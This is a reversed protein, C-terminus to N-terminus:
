ANLLLVGGLAAAVGINQVARLREGHIFRALLTTAVPYLSALVTVVALDSGARHAALGYLGNASMDGLGVLLLTVLIAPRFRAARVSRGAPAPPAASAADEVDVATSMEGSTENEPRTRATTQARIDAADAAAAGTRLVDADADITDATDTDTRANDTHAYADSEPKADARRRAARLGALALPGLVLLGTARQAVLTGYVSHASGLAFLVFYWGFGAASVLTYLLTSRGPRPAGHLRPGCALLVGAFALAMGAGQLPGVAEGHALAWLVPIVTGTASMPAVLSMPGAAMARYFAVLAIAGCAGAGAGYGQYAGWPPRALPAGILLAACAIAVGFFVVNVSPMRRSLTGGAFDSTGWVASALLALLEPLPPSEPPAAAPEAHVRGPRAATDGPRAGDPSSIAACAARSVRGLRLGATVLAHGRGERAIVCVRLRDCARVLM